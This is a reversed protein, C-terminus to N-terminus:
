KSNQTIDAVPYVDKLLNELPAPSIQLSGSYPYNFILLMSFIMGFLIGSIVTIITQLRANQTRLFYSCIVVLITSIYISAWLINPILPEANRLHRLRRFRAMDNLHQIMRAAVIQERSNEPLYRIITGYLKNFAMWAPLSQQCELMKPWGDDVVAKTYSVILTQIEHEKNIDLGRSDRYLNGMVSAEEATNRRQLEYDQWTSIVAFALLVSLLTGIQRMLINAVQNDEPKFFLHSFYRRSLIMGLVISFVTIFIIIITFVIPNLQLLDSFM